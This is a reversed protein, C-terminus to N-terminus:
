FSFASLLVPVINGGSAAAIAAWELRGKDSSLTLASVLGYELRPYDRITEAIKTKRKGKTREGTEKFQRHDAPWSVEDM